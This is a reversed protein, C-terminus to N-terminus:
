EAHVIVDIVMSNVLAHTGFNPMYADIKVMADYDGAATFAQFFTVNEVKNGAGLLPSIYIAESTDRRTLTVRLLCSNEAPNHFSFDNTKRSISYHIDECHPILISANPTPEEDSELGVTDTITISPEPAVIPRSERYAIIGVALLLGFLMTFIQVTRQLISFLSNERM